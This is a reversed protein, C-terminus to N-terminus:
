QQQSGLRAEEIIELIEPDVMLMMVKIVPHAMAYKVYAAYDDPRTWHLTEVNEAITDLAEDEAERYIRKGFEYTEPVVENIIIDQLDAPIANWSDMNVMMAVTPLMSAHCIVHQATEHMGLDTITYPPYQVADIVGQIFAASTEEFSVPVAAMGVYDYLPMSPSGPSSQCRLGELDALYETERVSNAVCMNIGTPIITLVKVPGAEEIKEAIIDPLETEELAAYAQDYSQWMGDIYFAMVDPVASSVWYTADSMMDVAGTVVAEWAETVPFLQSGPYIDVLVRGHTYEEMLDAFRQHIIGGVSNLPTSLVLKLTIPEPTPEPSLTPSVGGTPKATTEDGGCSVASALLALVLLGALVVAIKSM